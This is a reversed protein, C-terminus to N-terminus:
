LLKLYAVIDAIDQDTLEIGDGKFDPSHEFTFNYFEVAEELTAASNDHFYPATLAIGRLSPIKFFNAFVAPHALCLQKPPLQLEPISWPDSLLLGPDPTTVRREEGCADTVIFEFEPLGPLNAESVMAPTTPIGAGARLNGTRGFGNTRNLLPGSHCLACIGKKDPPLYLADVFFERGRRQSDTRGPPLGPEPGKGNAWAHLEDSTFFRRHSSQIDAILQLETETPLRSAQAHGEIAAAAQTELDGIRLDWQFHNDFFPVNMTSPVGRAVVISRAAPDDALRVYDPLDLEVLVTADRRIRRTGSHFDDLGDHLFLPDGPNAAFRRTVQEPNITGTDISHCSVCRRGNGGFLEDDFLRLGEAVQQDRCDAHMGADAECIKLASSATDAVGCATLYLVAGLALILKPM